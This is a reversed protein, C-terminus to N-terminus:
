ASAPVSTAAAEVQGKFTRPGRFDGVNISGISVTRAPSVWPVACSAPVTVIVALGEVLDLKGISNDSVEVPGVVSRHIEVVRLSVSPDDAGPHDAVLLERDSGLVFHEEADGCLM